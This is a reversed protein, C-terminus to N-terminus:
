ENISASIVFSQTSRRPQGGASPKGVCTTVRTLQLDLRRCPFNAPWLGINKGSHWSKGVATSAGASFANQRIKFSV